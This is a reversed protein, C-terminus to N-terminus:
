GPPGDAPRLRAAVAVAEARSSVGFKRLISKVHSRVTETTVFLEASIAETPRGLCLLDLVEWERQTLTSRVPRLGGETGPRDRLQEILTMTLERSVAAEGAAVGRVIRPLASLDLDRTVYGAAGARLCRLALERDALNALVIVRGAPGAELVSRLATIGGDRGLGPDMIVIDPRHERTLQVAEPASGTEAVVTIEAESLARRLVGRALPDEDAILVRLEPETM